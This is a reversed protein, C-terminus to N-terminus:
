SANWVIARYGLQNSTWNTLVYRDGGRWGASFHIFLSAPFLITAGATIKFAFPKEKIITVLWLNADGYFTLSNLSCYDNGSDVHPVSNYNSILRRQAFPSWPGGLM